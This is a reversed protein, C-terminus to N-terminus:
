VAPRIAIYQTATNSGVSGNSDDVIYTFLDDPLDDIAPASTTFDFHQLVYALGGRSGIGYTGEVGDDWAAQRLNLEGNVGISDVGIGQHNASCGFGLKGRNIWAFAYIRSRLISTPELFPIFQLRGVDHDGSVTLWDVLSTRAQISTLRENYLGAQVFTDGRGGSCGGSSGLPLVYFGALGGSFPAKFRLVRLTTDQVPMASGNNPSQPGWISDQYLRRAYYTGEFPDVGSVGTSEGGGGGIITDGGIINPISVDLWDDIWDRIQRLPLDDFNIRGEDQAAM